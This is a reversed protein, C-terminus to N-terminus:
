GEKQDAIAWYVREYENDECTMKYLLYGGPRLLALLSNIQANSKPSPPLTGCLAAIDFSGATLQAAIEDLKGCRASSVAQLDALYKPDQTYSFSETDTIGRQRLTNRLELVPTGCRPDIVLTRLRGQPLQLHKLPTLLLPEYNGFDAWPDIGHYKHVYTTYGYSLSDRYAQADKDEMNRFDHDHCVWTDRCLMLKYGSRRLRAAFDDEIFDHPFAADSIGVIDLVPRSYVGILSILRLREEWKSPDSINYARAAEQMEDFSSFELEEEQLSSVNSSVPAVYGINPESEYCKLLNDLWNHTVYVDNSVIVLYKGTFNQRAMRWAYGAGINKTIRIVRKNRLEASSFYEFTGDTSGNDILLLEYDINKTHKEICEICCKTKHLRNFAPVAITCKPVGPRDYMAYAGARNELASKTVDPPAIDDTDYIIISDTQNM